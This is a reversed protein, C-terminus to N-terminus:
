CNNSSLVRSATKNEKTWYKLTSQAKTKARLKPDPILSGPNM